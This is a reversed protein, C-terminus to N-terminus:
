EGDKKTEPPWGANEPWNLKDFGRLKGFKKKDVDLQFSKNKVDMTLVNLPVAFFKDGIGFVGGVSLVLYKVDSRTLDVVVEQIKGLAKGSRDKIKDGIISTTSLRGPDIASSTKNETLKIGAPERNELGPSTQRAKQAPKEQTRTNMM